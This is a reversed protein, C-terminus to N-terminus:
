CCLDNLAFWSSRGMVVDGLREVWPSAGVDGGFTVMPPKGGAWDAVRRHLRTFAVTGAAHGRRPRVGQGRPPQVHM